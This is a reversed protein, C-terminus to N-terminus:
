KDSRSPNSSIAANSRFAGLFTRPTREAETDCKGLLGSHARKYPSPRRFCQVITTRHTRRQMSVTSRSVGSFTRPTRQSEADFQRPACIHCLRFLSPRRRFRQGITTRHTRRQITVTSRFAGWFTRPTREAETDRKGLLGSHARKYPSPRRFCQVITTRHTRRQISVTSRSVDFQRPACIHCLRFLSPRRRFRQGITTRHTRRQMTVTSRSM